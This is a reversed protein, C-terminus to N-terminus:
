VLAYESHFLQDSPMKCDSKGATFIDAAAIPIASPLHLEAAKDEM